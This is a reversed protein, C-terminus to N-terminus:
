GCNDHKECSKLVNPWNTDGRVIADDRDKAWKYNAIRNFNLYLKNDVIHWRNPDISKTFNHSVAFACYGGYQPAYREPQEIFLQRNEETSFYWTAGKYEYSINRDGVVAKDGEKLSFYAVTDVGKIAGKIKHSYILPDAAFASHGLSLGIMTLFTILFKMIHGWLTKILM